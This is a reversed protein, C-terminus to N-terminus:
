SFGKTHRFLNDPDYTQKLAALREYMTDGYAARTREPGEDATMFNLYAGGTSFPRMAEWAERAWTM